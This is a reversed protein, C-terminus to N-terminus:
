ADVDELVNNIVFNARPSDTNMNCFEYMRFNYKQSATFKFVNGDFDDYTWEQYTPKFWTQKSLGYCKNKTMFRDKVFPMNDFTLYSYGGALTVAGNMGDQVANNYQKFVQLEDEYGQVVLHRATLLDIPKGSRIDVSDKAGRLFRETLLANGGDRKTAKYWKNSTRDIGHYTNADKALADEIGTIGIGFSGNTVFVDGEAVAYTGGTTTDVTSVVSITQLDQDVDVIEINDAKLTSATYIDIVLGIDYRDTNEVPLTKPTTTTLALPLTLGSPHTGSGPTLPDFATFKDIVGDEGTVVQRAMDDKAAEYATEMEDALLDEFAGDDTGAHITKLDIAGQVTLNKMNVIQREKGTTSPSKYNAGDAIAGAGGQKGKRLGYVAFKGSIKNYGVSKLENLFYHSDNNTNERFTPLYFEYLSNQIDQLNFKAGDGLM